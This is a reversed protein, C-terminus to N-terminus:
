QKGKPYLVPRIEKGGIQERFIGTHWVFILEGATVSLM